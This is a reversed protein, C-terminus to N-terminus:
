IPNGLGQVRLYAAKRKKKEQALLQLVPESDPSLCNFKVVTRPIHELTDVPMSVDEVKGASILQILTLRSPLFRLCAASENEWRSVAANCLALSVLSRPLSKIFLDDIRQGYHGIIVDLSTLHPPLRLLLSLDTPGSLFDRWVVPATFRPSLDLTLLGPLIDALDAICAPSIGCGNNATLSTLKPPLQKASSLVAWDRDDQDDDICLNLSDLEQLHSLDNLIIKETAPGEVHIWLNRLSKPLLSLNFPMRNSRGYGVWSLGLVLSTLHPPWTGDTQVCKLLERTHSTYPTLELKTLYPSLPKDFSILSFAEHPLNELRPCVELLRKGHLHTISSTLDFGKISPGIEALRDVLVTGNSADRLSGNRARLFTLTPPLEAAYDGHETSESKILSAMPLDLTELHPFLLKWSSPKPPPPVQRGRHELSARLHKLTSPLFDFTVPYSCSVRHLTVTELPIHKWDLVENEGLKAYFQIILTTLQPPLNLLVLHTDYPSADRPRLGDLELHTLSQPLKSFSPIPSDIKAYLFSLRPFAEALTGGCSAQIGAHMPVSLRQLNELGSWDVAGEYAEFNHPCEFELSNLQATVLKLMWLVSTLPVPHHNLWPFYASRITPKLKANLSSGAMWLRILDEGGMFHAIRYWAALDLALLSM